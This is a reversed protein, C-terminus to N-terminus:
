RGRDRGALKAAKEAIEKVRHPPVPTLTHKVEEACLRRVLSEEVRAERAAVEVCKEVLANLLEHLNKVGYQRAIYSFACNVMYALLVSKCEGCMEALVSLAFDLRRPLFANVRVWVSDEYVGWYKHCLVFRKETNWYKDGFKTLSPTSYM